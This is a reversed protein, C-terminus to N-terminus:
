DQQDNKEAQKEMNFEINVKSIDHPHQNLIYTELLLVGKYWINHTKSLYKIVDPRITTMPQTNHSYFTSLAELITNLSSHPYTDRQQLHAGSVLFPQIVSTFLASRLKEPLLQIVKPLLDIFLHHCLEDGATITPDATSLAHILQVISNFFEYSNTKSQINLTKLYTKEDDLLKNFKIEYEQTRCCSFVIDDTDHDNLRLIHQYTAKLRKAKPEDEILSNSSVVPTVLTSTARYVRTNSLRSLTTDDDMDNVEMKIPVSPVISNQKNQEQSKTCLEMFYYRDYYDSSYVTSLLSTLASSRNNTSLISTPQVCSYFLELCQKIWYHQGLHEWNQSLFMFFLRDQISKKLNKDLVNFFKQRINNNTSKLGILFAPEMKQCIETDKYVPEQYIYLILELFQNYLNSDDLFRKEMCQMLKCLINLKEKLTPCSQQQDNNTGSRYRLWDDVLKIISRILLIDHSKETVGPLFTNMFQKRLDQTLTHIRYKLLELCEIIYETFAPNYETGASVHDKILKQLLKTIIPTIKDVYKPNQKSITKLYTFSISLNQVSPTSVATTITNRS